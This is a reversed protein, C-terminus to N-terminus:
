KELEPAYVLQATQDIFIQTERHPRMAAHVDANAKPVQVSVALAHTFAVRM